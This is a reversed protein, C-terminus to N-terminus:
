NKVKYQEDTFQFHEDTSDKNETEEDDLLNITSPAATDKLSYVLIWCMHFAAAGNYLKDVLSRYSLFVLM